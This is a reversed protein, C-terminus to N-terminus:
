EEIEVPEVIAFHTVIFLHRNREDDESRFVWGINNFRAESFSAAEFDPRIRRVICTVDALPRYKKVSYWRM